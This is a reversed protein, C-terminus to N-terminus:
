RVSCIVALKPPLGACVAMRRGVTSRRLNTDTVTLQVYCSGSYAPVFVVEAGSNATGLTFNTVVGSRTFSM